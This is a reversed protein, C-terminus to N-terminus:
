EEARFREHCSECSEGVVRFQLRIADGDNALAAASFNAVTAQFDELSQAFAEDEEWISSLSDTEFGAEPGSGEPFWSAMQPAYSRIAQISFISTPSTPRGARLEDGVAKFAAGLDHFNARRAEIQDKIAQEEESLVRPADSGGGCSALVLALAPLIGRGAASKIFDFKLSVRRDPLIKRHTCSRSRAAPRWPAHAM